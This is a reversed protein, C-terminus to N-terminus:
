GLVPFFRAALARGRRVVQSARLRLSRPSAAIKLVQAAQPM